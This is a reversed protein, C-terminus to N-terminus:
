PAFQMIKNKFEIIAKEPSLIKVKGGLGFLWAYFQPSLMVHVTVTFSHEDHRVVFIDSGFRDVIVGIFDNDVLLKVECEEGGFM